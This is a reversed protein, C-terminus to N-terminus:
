ARDLNQEIGISHLFLTGIVCTNIGKCRRRSAPHLMEPGSGRRDPPSRGFPTAFFFVMM